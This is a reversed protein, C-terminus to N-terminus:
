SKGLETRLDGMARNARDDCARLAVTRLTEYRDRFSRIMAAYVFGSESEDVPVWDGSGARDSFWSAVTPCSKDYELYPGSDKVAKDPLAVACLTKQKRGQGPWLNAM